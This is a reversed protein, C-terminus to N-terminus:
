ETVTVEFAGAGKGSAKGEASWVLPAVSKAPGAVCFTTGPGSSMLGWTKGDAFFVLFVGGLQSSVGTWRGGDPKLAVTGLAKLIGTFSAHLVATKSGVVLGPGSPGTGSGSGSCPCGTGTQGKFAVPGDFTWTSDNRRWIALVNEAGSVDATHDAGPVPNSGHSWTWIAGGSSPTGDVADAPPTDEPDGIPYHIKPYVLARVLNPPNSAYGVRACISGLATSGPRVPHTTGTDPCPDVFLEFDVKHRRGQREKVRATESDAQPGVHINLSGINVSFTTPQNSSM